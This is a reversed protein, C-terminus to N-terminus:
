NKHMSALIQISPDRWNTRNNPDAGINFSYWRYGNHSSQGIIAIIDISINKYDNSSSFIVNLAQIYKPHPENSKLAIEIYKHKKENGWNDSVAYESDENQLTIVLEKMLESQDHISQLKGKLKATSEAEKTPQNQDQMLRELKKNFIKIKNNQSTNEKYFKEIDKLIKLGQKSFGDPASEDDNGFWIFWEDSEDSHDFNNWENYM